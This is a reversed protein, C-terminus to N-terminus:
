GMSALKIVADMPVGCVTKSAASLRV